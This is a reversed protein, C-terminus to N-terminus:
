SRTQVDMCRNAWPSRCVGGNDLRALQVVLCECVAAVRSRLGLGDKGGAAAVQMATRGERRSRGLVWGVGVVLLGPWAAGWPGVHM